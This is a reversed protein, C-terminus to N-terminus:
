LEHILIVRKGLKSVLSSKGRQTGSAKGTVTGSELNAVNVVGVVSTHTRDLSRFTRVDSKDGVKSRERAYVLVAKNLSRVAANVLRGSLNEIIDYIHGGINLIEVGDCLRVLGEVLVACEFSLANGCSAPVLDEFNRLILDIEHVYRRLHDNGDSRRHYREKLVVVRVTSKHARVHLSLCNREHYCLIRDDACTHFVLSGNVRANANEGLLVANNCANGRVFDGYLIVVSLFSLVLQYFELAGILTGTHVLSRDDCLALLYLLVLHKGVTGGCTLALYRQALIRKDAEHRPFAVVVLIGNKDVLLQNVIVNVCRDVYLFVLKFASIGLESGLLDRSIDRIEALISQFVEVFVTYDTDARLYVRAIYKDALYRRLALGLKGGFFSQEARYEAFLCSFDTVARQAYRVAFAANYNVYLYECSLVAVLESRSDLHSYAAIDRLLSLYGDAIFHRTTVTVLANNRAYEVLLIHREQGVTSREIDNKVREANRGTHVDTLHQFDMEAIGGLSEAPLYHSRYEVASVLLVDSLHESHRLLLSGSILALVTGAYIEGLYGHRLVCFRLKYVASRSFLEVAKYRDAIHIVELQMMENVILDVRTRCTRVCENRLLRQATLSLEATLTETLHFYPRQFCVARCIRKLFYEGDLGIVNDSSYLGIFRNYLALRNRVRTNRLRESNKDLLELGETEIDLYKVLVVLLDVELLGKVVIVVRANNGLIVELVSDILALESIGKDCVIRVLVVEAVAIVLMRQVIRPFGDLGKGETGDAAPQAAAARLPATLVSFEGGHGDLAHLQRLAPGRQGFAGFTFVAGGANQAREKDPLLRHGADDAGRQELFQGGVGDLILLRARLRVLEAELLAPRLRDSLVHARLLEDGERVAALRCGVVRGIQILGVGGDEVLPQHHFGQFLPLVGLAPLVEAFEDLVQQRLELGVADAALARKPLLGPLRCEVLEHVAVAQGAKVPEPHDGEVNRRVVHRREGPEPDGSLLHPLEAAEEHLPHHGLPSDVIWLRHIGLLPGEERGVPDLM